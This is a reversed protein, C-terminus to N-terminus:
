WDQIQVDSPFKMILIGQQGPKHTNGPVSLIMEHMKKLIGFIM